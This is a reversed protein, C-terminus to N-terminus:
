RAAVDKSPLRSEVGDWKTEPTLYRRLHKRQLARARSVMSPECLCNAEHLVGEQRLPGLDIATSHSEQFTHDIM